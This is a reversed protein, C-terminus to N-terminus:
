WASTRRAATRVRFPAPAGRVMWREARAGEDADLVNGRGDETGAAEPDELAATGNRIEAATNSKDAECGITSSRRVERNDRM